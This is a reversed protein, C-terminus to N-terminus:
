SNLIRKDSKQFLYELCTGSNGCCCLMWHPYVKCYKDKCMSIKMCMPTNFDLNHKLDETRLLLDKLVTEM